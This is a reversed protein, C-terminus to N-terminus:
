VAAGSTMYADLIESGTAKWVNPHEFLYDFASDLFSIRHPLGMQWPHLALGMVRAATAGERYLTDFQARIVAEFEATTYNRYLFAPVDNCEFNYPLSYIAKGTPLEIKFPMDDCVWDCVYQVGEDALIELTDWTEDLGPGLWGRPRKGTFAEIRDLTSRIEDSASAVEPVRRSNTQGHGMFEWGLEMATRVIEPRYDCVSSNLAVTGRVGHKAMVEMLRWIGARNGYERQCWQRVHPHAFRTPDPRQNQEGPMPWNFMFVEVNPVAWFALQAQGPWELRPRKPLATFPFPGMPTMEM